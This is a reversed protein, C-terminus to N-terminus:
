AAVFGGGGGGGVAGWGGAGGAIWCGPGICGSNGVEAIPTPDSNPPPVSGDPNTPDDAVTLDGSPDQFVSPNNRDRSYGSQSLPDSASGPFPDISTFAGVSPDYSRSGQFVNFRDWLGDSAPAIFPASMSNVIADPFSTAAVVGYPDNVSDVTSWGGGASYSRVAIATGTWDRYILQATSLTGGNSGFVDGDSGLKLDSLNGNADTTFILNNGFWHLSQWTAAGSIGMNNYQATALQGDSGWGYAITGTRTGISPCVPVLNFSYNSAAMSVVRDEFDYNRQLAGTCYAGSKGASQAITILRGMADYLLQQPPTSGLSYTPASDLVNPYFCSSSLCNLGDAYLSVSKSTYVPPTNTPLGGKPTPGPSPTPGTAATSQTGLEGRLTAITSFQGTPLTGFNANYSTVSGEDDFNFGSYTSTGLNMSSIRGLSDAAFTAPSKSPDNRQQLRGANSYVYSFPTAALSGYNVQWTQLLGDARYSWQFLNKASFANPLGSVSLSASSGDPYYTASITSPSTVSSSTSEVESKLRGDLDFLYTKSGASSSSSLTERNDGDYAYQINPTVSGDDYAVATIRRLQDYSISAYEWHSGSIINNTVTGLLGFQGSLDYAYTAQPTSSM